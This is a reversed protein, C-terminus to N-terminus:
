IIGRANLREVTAARLVYGEHRPDDAPFIRAAGTYYGASHYSGGAALLAAARKEGATMTVACLLARLRVFLPQIVADNYAQRTDADRDEARCRANHERIRENIQKELEARVTVLEAKIAKQTPAQTTKTM